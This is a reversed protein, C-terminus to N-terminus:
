TIFLLLNPLNIIVEIVDQLTRSGLAYFDSFFHSLGFLNIFNILWMPVLKTIIWSKMQYNVRDIMSFFTEIAKQEDPFKEILQKKWEGKGSPINYERQTPSMADM